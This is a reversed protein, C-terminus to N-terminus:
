VALPVGSGKRGPECLRSCSRVADRIKNSVRYEAEDFSAASRREKRVLRGCKWNRGTDGGVGPWAEDTQRYEAIAADYMGKQQYSWGLWLHALPFRPDAKLTAGLQQIAEDYHGSYYLQFGVDTNIGPSLPDLQKAHLIETKAEDPRGAATLYVSHWDRATAYNPNLDIAEKFQKEAETWNWAYYLNYYGLSAHAEALTSDLELAREAAAKAKPFSDDPSLYSFYGLATYCDALGSYAAGYNRDAQIAVNFQEIAKGIAAETRQNWYSRGKLNAEYARPDVVKTGGLRIRESDTLTARIGQVINPRWTGKCSCSM